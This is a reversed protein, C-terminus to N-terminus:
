TQVVNKMAPMAIVAAIGPRWLTPRSDHQERRRDNRRCPRAQNEAVGPSEGWRHRPCDTSLHLHAADTWHSTDSSPFERSV